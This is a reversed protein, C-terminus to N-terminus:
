ACSGASSPGKQLESSLLLAARFEFFFLSPLRSLQTVPEYKVGMRAKVQDVAFALPCDPSHKASLLRVGFNPLM